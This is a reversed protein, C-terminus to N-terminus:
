SVQGGRLREILLRSERMALERDRPKRRALVVLLHLLQTLLHRERIAQPKPYVALVIDDILITVITAEM